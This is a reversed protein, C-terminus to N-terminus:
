KVCRLWIGLECHLAAPDEVTVESDLAAKPFNQLMNQPLCIKRNWGQNASKMQRYRDVIESGLDKLRQARTPMQNNENRRVDTANFLRIQLRFQICQVDSVMYSSWSHAFSAFLYTKRM